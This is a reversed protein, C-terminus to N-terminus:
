EFSAADHPKDSILFHGVWMWGVNSSLSSLTEVPRPLCGLQLPAPCKYAKAVVVGRTPRRLERCRLEVVERRWRGSEVIHGLDHHALRRRDKM